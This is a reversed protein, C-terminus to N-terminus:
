NFPKGRSLVLHNRYLQYDYLVKMAYGLPIEVEEQLRNHVESPGWNYAALALNLDGFRKKLYSLYFVGLRINLIPDDLSNEGEWTKLQLEAALANGVFPLIQMLGRAGKHSLAVHDFRSEVKIVALVLMPDLSHKASEDFVTEAIAWVLSDKIEPRYSKVVSYIKLLDHLERRAAKDFSEIRHRIEQQFPKGPTLLFVPLSLLTLKLALTLGRLPQYKTIKKSRAM